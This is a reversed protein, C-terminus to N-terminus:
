LIWKSVGEAICVLTPATYAACSVQSRVDDTQVTYSGICMDQCLDPVGAKQCCPIHNRGASFYINIDFHPMLCQYPLIFFPKWLEWFCITTCNVQWANLSRQFIMKVNLPIVALPAMCSIRSTVFVLADIQWRDIYFNEYVPLQIKASFIM